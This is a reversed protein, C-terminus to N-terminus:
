GFFAWALLAVAVGVKFATAWRPTRVVPPRPEIIIRLQPQSGDPESRESSMADSTCTPQLLYDFAGRPPSETDNM